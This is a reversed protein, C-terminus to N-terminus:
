KKTKYHVEYRDSGEMDEMWFENNTLKLIKQSYKISDGQEQMELREKKSDFSWTGTERYGSILWEYTNDKTFELSHDGFVPLIQSTVDQGNVLYKEIEWTNVLRAKPTRLSFGPGEEYRKCSSASFLAASMVAFFLINIKKM